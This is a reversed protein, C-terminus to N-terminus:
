VGQLSIAQTKGVSLAQGVHEGQSTLKWANPSGRGPEARENRVLGLRELRALLKSIQGQDAIGSAVAIERNSSGPQAAVSLLVCVTRYTLRMGVSRLPDLSRPSTSEHSKTSAHELERSAAGAGLYPLVIMGMLPNVLEILPKRDKDLLRAQIVSLCGGVIGEATLASPRYSGKAEDRGKDVLGTARALVRRRRELAHPGAGLSDVVLFRALAPREDFLELLAVLSARMRERWKSEREHAPVVARGAQEIAHDLAALLCDDCGKFIEYFTRRSVGSRAVIHAVTVNSAGHEPAVEVVAALIRSRQIETVHEAPLGRRGAETQVPVTRRSPARTAPSM